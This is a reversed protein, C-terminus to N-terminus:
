KIYGLERLAQVDRPSLARDTGRRREAPSRMTELMARLRAVVASQESAVDRRERPDNSLDYLEERIPRNASLAAEWPDESGRDIVERSAGTASATAESTVDAQSDARVRRGALTFLLDKGSREVEGRIPGELKIKRRRSPDRLKIKEARFEDASTARGYLKAMTDLGLEAFEIEEGEDDVLDIGDEFLVRYGLIVVSRTAADIKEIPGTVKDRDDEQNAQIEMEEALFDGKGVWVGEVEIRTGESIGDRLDDEIDDPDESEVEVSAIYKWNEYRLTQQYRDGHIGEAYVPVPPASGGAELLPLVSRGAVGDPLRLDSFDALTPLLDVLSVTDEVRLGAHARGPFRITWPVMLLEDYLSNGHGIKGHELFEEGHDALFVIMTDDDLGRRRLGEIATGIWHDTFRLEGDYLDVMAQRDTESLEIQGDRIRRKLVKWAPTNFDIDSDAPDFLDGYTGPPDYPWHVDLFHLYSFFPEGEIEDIWRLFREAIDQAAGSDDEYREFGQAFGLVGNIQANHVFAATRFGAQRHMEALTTEEAPLTDSVIGGEVERSGEYVGHQHPHRGTFYSPVSPKTWSAPSVTAVFQVSERALRDLWPSTSTPYGWSGLHDARLVDICIVLINSPSSTAGAVRASGRPEAGEPETSEPEARNCSILIVVLAAVLANRIARIPVPPRPPSAHLTRQAEASM